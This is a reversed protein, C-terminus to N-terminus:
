GLISVQDSSAMSNVVRKENTLEYSVVISIPKSCLDYNKACKECLLRRVTKPYEKGIDVLTRYKQTQPFSCDECKSMPDIFGLESQAVLCDAVKCAEIFKDLTLHAGSFTYGKEFVKPDDTLSVNVSRMFGAQEMGLSNGSWPGELVKTSGDKMIISFKSGGYGEGPSSYYYFDVLGDKEAFYCCGKQEYVLSKYDPIEDVLVELTPLNDFETSNRVKAKLIKM